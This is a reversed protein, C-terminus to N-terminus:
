EKKLNKYFSVAADLEDLATGNRDAGNEREDYVRRKILNCIQTNLKVTGQKEKFLEVIVTALAIRPFYHRTILFIDILSRYKGRETQLRGNLFVTDYEKNLTFFNGIFESIVNTEKKYSSHFKLPASFAIINDAKEKLTLGPVRDFVTFNKYNGSPNLRTM